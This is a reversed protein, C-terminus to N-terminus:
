SVLPFAGPCSIPYVTIGQGDKNTNDNDVSLSQLAYHGIPRKKKHIKKSSLIACTNINTLLPKSIYIPSIANKWILQRWFKTEM